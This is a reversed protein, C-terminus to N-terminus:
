AVRSDVRIAFVDVPRDLIDHILVFLSDVRSDMIHILVFVSDVSRGYYHCLLLIICTILVLLSDIPRDMINIFTFVLDVPRDM